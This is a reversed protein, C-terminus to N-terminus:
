EINQVQERIKEVEAKVEVVLHAVSSKDTKSGMTNFERNLEQLLFNLKRGAPENSKMLDLFQTLHSGARVIEETIDSRDALIAAEQAIRDPDISVIGETLTTIRQTLRERYGNVLGSSLQRVEALRQVILQIRQDIDAAIYDGERTRMEDLDTLARALCEEVVPWIQSLHLETEAPKIIDPVAAIQELAVPGEINLADRLQVLAQYYAIAKPRNIEFHVPDSPEGTVQMKLEVRGRAIKEVIVPRIREELPLYQQPLRLVIDLYRNNYSRIELSLSVPDGRSEAKAFATMSKIM